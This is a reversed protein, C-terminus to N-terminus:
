GVFEFLEQISDSDMEIERMSSEYEMEDKSILAFASTMNRNKKDTASLECIVYNKVTRIKKMATFSRKM